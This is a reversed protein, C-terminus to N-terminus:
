GLSQPPSPRGILESGEEWLCQSCGGGRAGVSGTPCVGVVLGHGPSVCWVGMQLSVRLVYAWTSSADGM